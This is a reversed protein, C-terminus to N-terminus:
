AGPARAGLRQLGLGRGHDRHRGLVHTVSPTLFHQFLWGDQADGRIWLLLGAILLPLLHAARSAPRNM